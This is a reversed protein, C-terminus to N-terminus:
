GAMKWLSAQRHPWRIWCASTRKQFHSRRSSRESVMIGLVKENLSLPLLLESKLQELSAREDDDTLQVWSDTDAFDM